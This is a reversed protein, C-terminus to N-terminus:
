YMEKILIMKQNKGHNLPKQTQDMFQFKLVVLLIMWLSGPLDQSLKQFMKESKPLLTGDLNNLLLPEKTLIPKTIILGNLLDGDTHPISLDLVWM